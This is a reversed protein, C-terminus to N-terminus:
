SRNAARGDDASEGKQSKYGAADREDSAKFALKKSTEALTGMFMQSCDAGSFKNYVGDKCLSGLYARSMGSM